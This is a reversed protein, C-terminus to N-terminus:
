GGSASSQDAHTRAAEMAECIEAAGDLIRPGSRSILDRDITYLNGHRVATMQTLKQWRQQWESDDPSGAAMIIEPDAAAVAEVSVPPAIGALDAFINQGGCLAIIDSIVHAGTVSFLPESSIQFFVSVPSKDRYRLRLAEIQAALNSAAAQAVSQTGALNGITLLQDGIDDLRTADLEIVRYGLSRLREVIERPTGSRWALVIDPHLLGIAEYDVRFADGIRPVNKAEAPYDSYAVAGVLQAGAGAAYTLETLHPSLSVIRHVESGVPGSLPAPTQGCAPLAIAIVLALL